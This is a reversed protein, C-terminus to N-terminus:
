ESSMRGQDGSQQYKGAARGVIAIIATAADAADDIVGVDASAPDVLPRLEVALSIGIEIRPASVLSAATDAALDIIGVLIILRDVIPWLVVVLAIGIEIRFPVVLPATADATFDIRRFVTVRRVIVI